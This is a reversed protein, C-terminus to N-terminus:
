NQAWQGSASEGEWAKNFPAAGGQARPLLLVLALHLRQFMTLSKNMVPDFLLMDPLCVFIQVNRNQHSTPCLTQLMTCYCHQLQTDLSNKYLREHLTEYHQSFTKTRSLRPM